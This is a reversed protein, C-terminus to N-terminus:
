LKIAPLKPREIVHGYTRLVMTNDRHGALYAVDPVSVNPKALAMSLTTHRLVHINRHKLGAEKLAPKWVKQTFVNRRVLGGKKARFVARKPDEPLGYDVIIEILQESELERFTETKTGERIEIRETEINRRLSTGVYVMNRNVDVNGALLGAAEGFRCGSVILFKIFHYYWPWLDLFVRLILRLERENFVPVDKKPKKKPKIHDYPFATTLGRKIAWEYAQSILRRRLNYTYPSLGPRFLDGREIARRTTKYHGAKTYSSIDLTEIWADWISLPDNLGASVARQVEPKYRDLSLDLCGKAIDAQIRAAIAYATARDAPDEWRLGPLGLNPRTGQYRFRIRISGNNNTPKITPLKPM